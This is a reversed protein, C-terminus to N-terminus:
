GHPLGVKSRVYELVEMFESPVVPAAPPAVVAARDHLFGAVTPPDGGLEPQRPAPQSTSPQSSSKPAPPPQSVSALQHPLPLPLQTQPHPPQPQPRPRQRSPLQKLEKASRPASYERGNTEWRHDGEHHLPLTCLIFGTISECCKYKPEPEPEVESEATEAEMADARRKRSASQLGEEGGEDETQQPQCQQQPQEVNHRQQQWLEQQQQQQQPEDLQEWEEREEQRGQEEEEGRGYSQTSMPPQGQARIRISDIFEDDDEEDASAEAGTGGNDAVSYSPSVTGARQQPRQWARSQQARSLQGRSLQGPASLQQRARAYAM